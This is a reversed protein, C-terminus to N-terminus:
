MSPLGLASGAGAVGGASGLASSHTGRKLGHSIAADTISAVKMSTRSVATAFTDRGCMAPLREAVVSSAVHTRM